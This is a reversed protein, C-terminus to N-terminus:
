ALITNLLTQFLLDVSLVVITWFATFLLVALTSKWTARRSPWRVQRLEHWSGAFYGGIAGLFRPVKLRRARAPDAQRDGSDSKIKDAKNKAEAM